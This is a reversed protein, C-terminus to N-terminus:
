LRLAVEDGPEPTKKRTGPKERCTARDDSARRVVLTTVYESGRFVALEAGAQVGAKSGIDVEYAGSTEDCTRLHGVVRKLLPDGVLPSHRLVALRGATAFHEFGRATLKTVYIPGKPASLDVVAFKARDVLDREVPTELDFLFRYDRLPPTLDSMAYLQARNVVLVDDRRPLLPLLARVCDEDSRIEDARVRKAIQAATTAFPALLPTSAILALLCRAGAGARLRAGLDAVLGSVGLIGWPAALQVYHPYQRVYLPLLAVGFASLVVVSWANRARAAFAITLAGVPIVTVLARGRTMENWLGRWGTAAYETASGDGTVFTRFAVIPNQRTFAVFVLFALPVSAVFLLARRVRARGASSEGDLIRDRFVAAVGLVAVVVIAYQKMMLAAGALAGAAIVAGRGRRLLVATSALLCLNVFPELELDFGDSSLTWAVFTASWFWAEARSRGLRRLALFLLAADLAHLAFLAAKTWSPDTLRAAGLPALLYAAGPAYATPFDRIPTLGEAVMRAHPLYYGSDVSLRLTSVALFSLAASVAFVLFTAAILAGRGWAVDDTRDDQM